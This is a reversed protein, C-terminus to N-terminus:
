AREQPHLAGAAVLRVEGEGRLGSCDPEERHCVLTKIVEVRWTWCGKWLGQTEQPFRIKIVM